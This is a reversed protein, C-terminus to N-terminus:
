KQAQKYQKDKLNQYWAFLGSAHRDVKELEKFIQDRIQITTVEFVGQKEIWDTITRALESADIPRLGAATIVRVIKEPDYPEISGNRKIVLIKKEMHPYSIV